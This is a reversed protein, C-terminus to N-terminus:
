NSWRASAQSATILILILQPGEPETRCSTMHLRKVFCCSLVFSMSGLVSGAAQRSLQATEGSATQINLNIVAFHVSTM